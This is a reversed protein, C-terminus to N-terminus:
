VVSSKVAYDRLWRPPRDAELRGERVLCILRWSLFLDSLSDRPDASHMANQVVEHAARWKSSIAQLLLHDFASVPVPEVRDGSWCRRQDPADRLAEFRCAQGRREADDLVRAGVLYSALEPASHRGLHRGNPLEIVHLRTTSERLWRCAMALLVGESANQAAWVVVDRQGEDVLGALERWAVFADTQGHTWEDFGDYCARMYAVRAVGDDLPGHGLDDPICHVAEPMDHSCLTDRLLGAGHDGLVLHITTGLDSV